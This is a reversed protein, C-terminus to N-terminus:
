YKDITRKVQQNYKHAYQNFLLKDITRNKFHM